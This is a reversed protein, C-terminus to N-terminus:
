DQEIILDKISAFDTNKIYDELKESIAKSGGFFETFMERSTLSPFNKIGLYDLLSSWRYNKLFDLAKQYNKLENTRWEPFKFDLPNLHIYFFLHLWYSEYNVHVTKFNGQFLCGSRKYKQNFYNTYGGGLKRMFTTIGKDVKQKLLLHFHNDMLCFTLIDVLLERPKENIKRNKRHGVDYIKRHPVDYNYSEVIPKKYYINPAPNKDNFEFLDHLFRFRDSDDIFIARKDVGRNYIHYIEGNTFIPNKMLTYGIM